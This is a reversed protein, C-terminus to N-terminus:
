SHLMYYLYYYFCFYYYVALFKFLVYIVKSSFILILEITAMFLALLIFLHLYFAIKRYYM